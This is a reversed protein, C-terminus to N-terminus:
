LVKEVACFVQNWWRAEKYNECKPVYFKPTSKKQLMLRSTHFACLVLDFIGASIQDGDVQIHSESLHLGRIRVMVHARKGAHLQYVKAPANPVDAQVFNLDGKVAHIVNHVGDIINKWTPKLSDEFDILLQHPKKGQFM